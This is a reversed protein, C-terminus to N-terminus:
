RALEAEVRARLAKTQDLMEGYRLAQNRHAILLYHYGVDVDRDALLDALTSPFPVQDYHNPRLAM